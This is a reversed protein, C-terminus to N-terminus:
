RSNEVKQYFQRLYNAQIVKGKAELYNIFDYDPTFHDEIVRKVRGVVIVFDRIGIDYLQEFIIQIIPKFQGNFPIPFMEKPIEKSAPLLRTGM